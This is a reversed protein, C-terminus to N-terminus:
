RTGRQYGSLINGLLQINSTDSNSAEMENMMRLAEAKVEERRTADSGPLMYILKAALNWEIGDYYWDPVELSLPLKLELDPVELVYLSLCWRFLTAGRTSQWLQLQPINTKQFYYNIPIGNIGKAPLMFFNDRNMKAAPQEYISNRDGTFFGRLTISSSHQGLVLRIGFGLKPTLLDKWIWQGELLEYDEFSAVTEWTPVNADVQIQIEFSVVQDRASAIGWYAFYVADPNTGPLSLLFQTTTNSTTNWDYDELNEPNTGGSPTMVFHNYQRWNLNFIDMTRKDMDYIWKDPELGMLLPTVGFIPVGRNFMDLLVFYLNQKARIIFQPTQNVTSIGCKQVANEILQAVTIEM